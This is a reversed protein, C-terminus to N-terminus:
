NDLALLDCSKFIYSPPMGTCINYILLDRMLFVGRCIPFQSLWFGGLFPLKLGYYRCETYSYLLCVLSKSSSIYNHVHMRYITDM